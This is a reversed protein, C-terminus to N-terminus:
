SRGAAGFRSSMVTLPWRILATAWTVLCPNRNANSRTVPLGIQGISSRGTGGDSTGPSRAAL